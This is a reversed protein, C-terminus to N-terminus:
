TSPRVSALVSNLDKRFQEMAQQLSEGILLAKTSPIDSKLKAMSQKSDGTYEKDLYVKGDKEDVLSIRLRSHGYVDTSTSGYILGGIGGTLLSVIFMRSVLADYGPIEWRLEKIASRMVLDVKEANQSGGQDKVPPTVRAVFGTGLMESDLIKRIEEIANTEYFKDIDRDSRQDDPGLHLIVLTGRQQDSASSPYLFKTKGACGSIVVGIFLVCFSRVLLTTM